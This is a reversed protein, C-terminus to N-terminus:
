YTRNTPILPHTRCSERYPLCSAVAPSHVDSLGCHSHLVAQMVGSPLYRIYNDQKGKISLLHKPPAEPVAPRHWARKSRSASCTNLQHRLCIGAKSATNRVEHADRPLRRGRLHLSAPTMAANRKWSRVGNAPLDVVMLRGRSNM